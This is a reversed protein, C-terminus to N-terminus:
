PFFDNEFSGWYSKGEKYTEEDIGAIQFLEMSHIKKRCQDLIDYLYGDDASIVVEKLRIDRSELFINANQQLAAVLITRTEYGIYSFILSDNETNVSIRFLGEENTICGKSSGIVGVACYSLAEKTELDKVSGQITIQSYCCVSYFFFLLLISKM